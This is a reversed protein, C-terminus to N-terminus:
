KEKVFFLRPHKPDRYWTWPRHTLLFLRSTLRNAEMDNGPFAMRASDTLEIECPYCVHLKKHVEPWPAHAPRAFVVPRLPVHRRDCLECCRHAHRDTKEPM